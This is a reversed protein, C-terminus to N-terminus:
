RANSFKFPQDAFALYIYTDGSANLGTGTKRPKFGNSLIDLGGDTYEANTENALLYRTVENSTNRTSDWIHWHGTNNSKKQMIWAPRFGTHVFPGDTSGNGVYSGVKSYGEVSHFCYAIYTGGSANINDGNSSGDELSFTASALNDIGGGSFSSYSSEALNSSLLLVKGSSLNKDLYQWHAASDRRKVFLAEITQSLGHAVTAGDTGNGTYSIISFGATTNIQGESDITGVSTASADNSFATGALWNWAVFTEGNGNIGGSSGITFGDSDFSTFYTSDTAEADTSDSKLYKTSGVVSNALFHPYTTSRVKAWVFDPSFGVGTIARSGTANGTYLVTNFHETGDIIAADPLNQSCLALFGSPPAYQFSGHGEGDANSNATSKAGSFSSDQGFNIRVDGSTGTYVGIFPVVGGGTQTVWDADFTAQPNSGAAPDGSNIYTGNVSIFAKGNDADIAFGLITESTQASVGTADTSTWAPTRFSTANTIYLFKDSSGTAGSNAFSDKVRALGAEPNTGATYYVEYYWKGSSMAMNGIAARDNSTQTFKTNGESLVAAAPLNLANFTAFNNTPVDPVSDRYDLNVPTWHNGNTTVDKFFAAERTDAFAHYIYTENNTNSTGYTNKIQFGTSTFDTSNGSDEAASTNAYLARGGPNVVNRTNDLIQWDGTNDVNKIMIWAPAFGLTVSPGTSSGNGEYSGFASYSSIESWCYAVLNTGNSGFASGFTFVTSTPDAGFVTGSGNTRKASNDFQFYDNAWNFGTHTHGIVWAGSGRSKVIIWKPAAGLGHAVTQSDSGNSTFTVISFGKTTNASLRTAAISGALASGLNSGDIKVSGATPTAGAGASNDATPAGGAEWCWAVMKNGDTTVNGSTGLSFGDADFSIMEDSVTYEANTLNSYIKKNSGRVVDFWLHADADTREKLWVLAPSFGLGSISQAAGTGTFTVTNFGESVVDDKFTLHFGNTGFTLGSTDKPIWIGNKTEGFSDATLQTGDIFNVEAIYGDFPGSGNGYAGVAQASNNNIGSEGNLTTANVQTLTQRVGNVYIISRESETSNTSDFAWVIHYFASVDRFKTVTTYQSVYGGNYLYARIIDTNDFRLGDEISSGTAGMLGLYASINGRKVWGSWTWTRRNGASAPTRTLYQSDDDNFKLSQDLLHNYFGTSVEGVGQAKILSM